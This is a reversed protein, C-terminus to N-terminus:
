SHPYVKALASVDRERLPIGQLEISTLSQNICLCDKLARCLRYTIEKSRISPIKRKVSYGREETVTSVVFLSNLHFDNSCYM